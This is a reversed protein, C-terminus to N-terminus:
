KRQPFNEDHVNKEHHELIDGSDLELGASLFDIYEAPVDEPIGEFDEEPNLFDDILVSPKENFAAGQRKVSEPKDEPPSEPPEKKEVPAATKIKFFSDCGLCFMYANRHSESVEYAMNCEPCYVEM